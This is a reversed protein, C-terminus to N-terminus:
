SRILTRAIQGLDLTKNGYHQILDCYENHMKINAKTSPIESIFTDYLTTVPEAFFKKCVGGITSVGWVSNLPTNYFGEPAYRLEPPMDDTECWMRTRDFKGAVYDLYQDVRNDMVVVQGPINRDTIYRHATEGDIKRVLIQFINSIAACIEHFTHNPKYYCETYSEDGLHQMPFEYDFGYMTLHSLQTGRWRMNQMAKCFTNVFAEPMTDKMVTVLRSPANAKDNVIKQVEPNAYAEVTEKWEAEDAFSKKSLPFQIVGNTTNKIAVKDFPMYFYRPNLYEKYELMGPLLADLIDKCSESVLDNYDDLQSGVSATELFEVANGNSALSAAQLMADLTYGIVYVKDSM